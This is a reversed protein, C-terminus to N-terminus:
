LIGGLADVIEVGRNHLSVAIEDLEEPSVLSDPFEANIDDYTIYGKTESLSVLKLIKEEINM